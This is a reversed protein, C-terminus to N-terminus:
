HWSVDLIWVIQIISSVQFRWTEVWSPLILGWMENSLTKSIKAHNWHDWYHGCYGMQRSTVSKTEICFMGMTQNALLVYWGGNSYAFWKHCCYWGTNLSIGNVMKRERYKIEKMKLIPRNMVLGDEGFSICWFTHPVSAASWMWLPGSKILSVFSLLILFCFFHFKQKGLETKM